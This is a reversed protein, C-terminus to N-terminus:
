LVACSVVRSLIFPAPRAPKQAEDRRQGHKTTGIQACIPCTHPTPAYASQVRQPDFIRQPNSASM